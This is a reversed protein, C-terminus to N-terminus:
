ACTNLKWRSALSMSHHPINIMSFVHNCFHFKLIFNWYPEGGWIGNKLPYPYRFCESATILMLPCFNDPLQTVVSGFPIGPATSAGIGQSSHTLDSCSNQGRAERCISTLSSLANHCRYVFFYLFHLCSCEFGYRRAQYVHLNMRYYNLTCWLDDFYKDCWPREYWSGPCTSQINRWRRRWALNGASVALLERGFCM